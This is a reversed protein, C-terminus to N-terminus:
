KPTNQSLTVFLETLVKRSDPSSGAIFGAAMAMLGSELPYDEIIQSADVFKSSESEMAASKKGGAGKTLSSLIVFLLGAVVIAILGSILAAVYPTLTTNLYLFSSWVLFGLGIIILISSIFLASAFVIFRTIVARMYENGPKLSTAVITGLSSM